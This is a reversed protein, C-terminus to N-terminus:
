LFEVNSSASVMDCIILRCLHALKNLHFRIGIGFRNKILQQMLFHFEVIFWANTIANFKISNERYLNKNYYNISHM